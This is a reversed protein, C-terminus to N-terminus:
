SWAEGIMYFMERQRESFIRKIERKKLSLKERARFKFVNEKKKREGEAQQVVHHLM